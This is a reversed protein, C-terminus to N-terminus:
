SIPIIMSRMKCILFHFMHSLLKNLGMCSSITAVSALRLDESGLIWSKVTAAPVGAFLSFASIDTVGEYRSM